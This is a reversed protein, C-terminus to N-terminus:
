PIFRELGVTTVTIVTIYIADVWSYNSMVRFGVVGIFLLLILLAIATEIKSRFFKLFPSEM